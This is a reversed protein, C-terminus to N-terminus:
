KFWKDCLTAADDSNFGGNCGTVVQVAYAVVQLAAFTLAAFFAKM